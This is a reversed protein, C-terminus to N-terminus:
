AGWGSNTRSSRAACSAPAMTPATGSRAHPAMPPLTANPAVTGPAAFTGYTDPASGPVTADFLSGDGLITDNGMQGFLLDNGAGGALVDNGYPGPVADTGGDFLVISRQLTHIPDLADNSVNPVYVGDPGQSYLTTTGAALTRDLPSTDLGNPLISANDGAIVDNGAGGDLTTLTANDDVAFYDDGGLGRVILRSNVNEDYNIREVDQRRASPDPDRVQDLTVAILGNTWRCMAASADHTASAFLEYLAGLAWDDGRCLETM